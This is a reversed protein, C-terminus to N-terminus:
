KYTIIVFQHELKKLDSWGLVQIFITMTLITLIQCFITSILLTEPSDLSKDSAEIQGSNTYIGSSSKSSWPCMINLLQKCLNWSITLGIHVMVKLCSQVQNKGHKLCISWNVFNSIHNKTCIICSWWCKMVKILYTPKLHM